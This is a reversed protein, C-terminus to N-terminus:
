MYSRRPKSKVRRKTSTAKVKKVNKKARNQAKAMRRQKKEEALISKRLERVALIDKYAANGTMRMGDLIFTTNDNMHHLKWKKWSRFFKDENNIHVFHKFGNKTYAGRALSVSTGQPLTNPLMQVM